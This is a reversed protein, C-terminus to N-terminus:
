LHPNLIFLPKTPKIPLGLTQFDVNILLKIPSFIAITELLGWVVLFM